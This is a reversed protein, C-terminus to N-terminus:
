FRDSLTELQCSFRYGVASEAGNETAISVRGLRAKRACDDADLGGQVAYCKLLCAILVFKM